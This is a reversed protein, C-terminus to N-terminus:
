IKHNVFIEIDYNTLIKMNHKKYIELIIHHLKTFEQKKSSIYDNKM